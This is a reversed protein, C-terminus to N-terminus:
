MMTAPIIQSEENVLDRVLEAVVEHEYGKPDLLNDAFYDLVEHSFMAYTTQGGPIDETYIGEFIPNGGFAKEWDTKTIQSNKKNLDVFRITLIINGFVMNNKMIRRLASIKESNASSVSFSARNNNCVCEKSVKIEPDSKFLEEVKVRVKEWPSSLSVGM